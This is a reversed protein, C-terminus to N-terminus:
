LKLKRRAHTRKSTLPFLTGDNVNQLNLIKKETMYGGKRVEVAVNPNSTDYKIEVKDQPTLGMKEGRVYIEAGQPTSGIKVTKTYICSATIFLIILCGLLIIYKERM